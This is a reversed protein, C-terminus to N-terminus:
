TKAVQDRGADLLKYEGTIAKLVYSNARLWEAAKVDTQSKPQIGKALNVLVKLKGKGLTHNQNPSAM